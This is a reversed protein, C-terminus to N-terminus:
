KLQNWYKDSFEDYSEMDDDDDDKDCDNSKKNCSCDALEVAVRHRPVVNFANDPRIESEAESMNDAVFSRKIRGYQMANYCPM